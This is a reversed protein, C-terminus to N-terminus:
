RSFTKRKNSFQGCIELTKKASSLWNEVQNPDASYPNLKYNKKEDEVGVHKEFISAGKSLAIKISEFNNPEEHTSWGIRTKQFSNKLYDIQNLHLNSNPTQYEGVCYM